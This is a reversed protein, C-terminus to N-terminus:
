IHDWSSHKEFYASFYDIFARVKPALQRSSPYVAWIDTSSVIPFDDLVTVLRGSALYENAIWTSCITIGLGQLALDRVVEGNDASVKSKIKVSQEGKNSSFHWHELGKLTICRHEALSQPTTPKGHEALYDPSAVLLRKDSALKRANFSSDKLAANRIAIDFGGEVMDVIADSLKLDIKLDPYQKIFETLGPVLHMRGFSAPATIRLRGSPSALGAGIAAEAIEIQNLIDEAHPLFAEGEQTLSVRRTKRHVLRVSLKQELKNIYNSAVASSIGMEHGAESIYHTSALRIFLKLHEINM